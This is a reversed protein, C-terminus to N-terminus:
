GLLLKIGTLEKLRAVTELFMIKVIEFFVVANLAVAKYLRDQRKRLYPAFTRALGLM